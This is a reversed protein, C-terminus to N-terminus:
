HQGKAVILLQGYAAYQPFGTLDFLTFDTDCLPLFYKQMDAEMGKLPWNSVPEDATCQYCYLNVTCVKNEWGPSRNILHALSQKANLVTHAEGFEGFYLPDGEREAFAKLREAMHSNRNRLADNCSGPNNIIDSIDQYNDALESKLDPLQKQLARVRATWADCGTATDAVLPPPKKWLLQLAPVSQRPREFDVGGGPSIGAGKASIGANYARLDEWFTKYKLHLVSTDGTRLYQRQLVAGGHGGEFFFHQLGFSEHLFRIWVLPLRLYISLDHSGGEAQLVLRYPKLLVRLTDCTRADFGHDLTFGYKHTSLQPLSQAGCVFPAAKLLFLFISRRFYHM